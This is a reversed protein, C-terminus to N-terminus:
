PTTAAICCPSAWCSSAPVSPVWFLTSSPPKWVAPAGTASLPSAVATFTMIEIMVFMNFIDGTLTLGLVSGAMMLSLTYYRDLYDDRDMYRTSYITSLFTTVVVLIGFFLNLADVELGIGIAYGSIPVRNGLWYSIVEGDLMVPKILMLILVLPILSGIVAVIRRFNKAHTGFIVILFAALFLTMIAIVPFHIYINGM